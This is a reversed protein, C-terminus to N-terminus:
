LQIHSLPQALPSAPLAPLPPLLHQQVGNAEEEELQRLINQFIQILRQRYTMQGAYTYSWNKWYPRKHGIKFKTGEMVTQYTDKDAKIVRQDAVIYWHYETNLPVGSGVPAAAQRRKTSTFTFQWKDSALKTEDWVSNLYDWHHSRGVTM